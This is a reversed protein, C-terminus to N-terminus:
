FTLGLQHYELRKTFGHREASSAVASMWRPVMLEVRRGGGRSALRHLENAVLCDALGGHAPDLRIRLNCVGGTRKPITTATLAVLMGSGVERVALIRRDRRQMWRLVPELARMLLPGRYRAIEVPEYRKLEAPTIRQDLEYRVHWSKGIKVPEFVYGKPPDPVSPPAEPLLEYEAASGYHEFGLSTYLSYAPVNGDIVSLTTKDAKRERLYDLSETLLKRALGRRRYAPVVGVMGVSWSPTGGDRALLVAAAFRGDEEWVFGRFVDRLPPSLLGFFRLLPWLRRISRVTRVVEQAEDERFSWEPNDPYHFTEPVMDAISLLDAPLRLPRMAM